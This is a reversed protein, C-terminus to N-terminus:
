EIIIKKKIITKNDILSFTYMGKAWDATNLKIERSTEKSNYVLKGYSDYVLINVTQLLNHNQLRVNLVNKTPNPYISVLADEGTFDKIGTLNPYVIFQGMMGADEHMLIHCHFMYPTITDAFDEFKTIFKVTEKPKVLVVDKRGQEELRPSMGDRAIIYFQIDHIHFPHAVMTNNTLQWIEINNIPIKYDVRMMNFTSDNFYFPGYMGMKDVTTLNIVRTLTTEDAVYPQDKVLSLPITKVPNSTENVVDIELLNFDKGDLPNYMAMNLSPGGQIGTSLESAYSRLHLKKGELGSLNVLIESREGPALRIRTASVPAKLLGGDSGIIKFTFNNSFGFNFNREGSANLLRIRVVQAPFNAYVANGYNARSGNLLILSDQMGYFQIQNDSDFQQSQVILPFDDVGYRRPLTIAAESADRVIVMGAAGKMVHLATNGHFHPHYWYTAARDLVTFKPKWIANPAIKTHPGGDNRPAVHLGHWHVTTSDIIKNTVSINIEAGKNLIITPGLYKNANFGITSTKQGPFFQVSDQHMLLDISANSITDPVVLKTPSQAIVKHTIFLLICYSILAIRGFYKNVLTHKRM